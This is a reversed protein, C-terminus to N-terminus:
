RIVGASTIVLRQEADVALVRVSGIRDGPQVLEVHGGAQLWAVGRGVTKVRYPQGDAAKVVADPLAAV